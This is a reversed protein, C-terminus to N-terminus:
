QSKLWIINQDNLDLDDPLWYGDNHLKVIFDYFERLQKPYEKKTKSARPIQSYWNQWQIKKNVLFKPILVDKTLTDKSFGPGNQALAAIIFKDELSCDVKNGKCEDLVMKMRRRLHEVAWSPITPDHVPELQFNGTGYEAIMQDETKCVTCSINSLNGITKNVIYCLTGHGRFDGADDYMAVGYPTSAQKSSIQGIGQGDYEGAFADLALGYCQVAIAAATYTNLVDKIQYGLLSKPVYKKATELREATTLCSVYGSPDTYNIPNGEVYMWRNLSLPRNYEGMWTDRTLFRGDGSSYYRARLYTLGSVDQQEGTFAFPSVASGASNATEGYPAYSKALTIEGSADTIQRVSGLADGLFYETTTNVQAIRGVGYLYQNTGDNLVQTM